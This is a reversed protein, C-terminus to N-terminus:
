LYGGPTHSQEQAQGASTFVAGSPDEDGGERGSGLRASGRLTNCSRCVVDVDRLRIPLGEAKRQWARPSHDATLDDVAGCDTCWPQMRRARKSLQVWAWDYGRGEPSRAPHKHLKPHEPCRSADSPAGCITCPKLPM